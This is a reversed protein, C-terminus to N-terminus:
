PPPHFEGRLLTVHVFEFANAYVFRVNDVWPLDVDVGIVNKSTSWFECNKKSFGVPIVRSWTQERNKIDWNNESINATLSLLQAFDRWIKVNNGEWIKPPTPGGFIQVHIIMGVMHCM